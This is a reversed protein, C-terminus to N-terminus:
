DLDMMEEKGFYTEDDLEELLVSTDLWPVAHVGFLRKTAADGAAKASFTVSTDKEGGKEGGKGSSTYVALREPSINYGRMLYVKLRIMVCLASAQALVGTRARHAAVDGGKQKSDRKDNNVTRGNKRTGEEFASQDIDLLEHLDAITSATKSAAIADIEHLVLCVEDARKYPLGALIVAIWCSMYINASSLDSGKDGKFSRVLLRLFENRKARTVCVIESYVKKARQQAAKLKAVALENQRGKQQNKQRPGPPCADKVGKVIRGMDIYQPYKAVLLKLQKVSRTCLSGVGADQPASGVSSDTMAFLVLTSLCSWPGCLGDRVSIEILFLIKRRIIASTQEEVKQHPSSDMALALIRDWHLQLIASSQTVDGEGNEAAVAGMAADRSQRQHLELAEVQVLEILGSLAALTIAPASDPSLAQGIAQQAISKGDVQSIPTAMMIQCIAELASRKIQAVLAPSGVAHSAAIAPEAPSTGVLSDLTWFGNLVLMCSAPMLKEALAPQDPLFMDVQRLLRAAAFRYVQGVIFIFRPLNKVYAEPKELFALYQAAVNLLRGTATPSSLACSSLCACAASVVATFKHKNIINPLEESIDTALNVTLNSRQEMSNLITSTIGLVYLTEEAHAKADEKSTQLNETGLDDKLHPGLTRLFKLPDHEPVCSSPNALAMAYIAHLCSLGATKSGLTSTKGSGVGGGGGGGDGNGNLRGSRDGYVFLNLLALATGQQDAAHIERLLAILPNSRDILGRCGSSPMSSVIADALKALSKARDEPSRQVRVEDGEAVADFWLSKFIKVVFSKVSDEGDTSRNLIAKYSEIVKDSREEPIILCCDRLIKIASKRVSSGVDESARIVIHILRVALAADQVMHKGVLVLAAERVSISDDQLAQEVATLLSPADLLRKDVTVIDGLAKVARARTSPQQQKSELIEVLWTLMAPAASLFQEHVMAKMVLVLDEEECDGEPITAAGLLAEAGNLDDGGRGGRGDDGASRREMKRGALEDKAAQLLKSVEEQLQQDDHSGEAKVLDESLKQLVLFRLSAAASPASLSDIGNIIDLGNGCDVGDIGCIAALSRAILHPAAEAITEYGSNSELISQLLDNSENLLVSDRHLHVLIRSCVDVCLQRVASDSHQLGVPGNLRSVLRILVTSSCTWYRSGCIDLLDQVIGTMVCMFDADTESRMTKASGLREMCLEWFRDATSICLAYPARIEQSSAANTLSACNQVMELIMASLIGVDIMGDREVILPLNRKYRKGVGVHPVLAGIVDPLVSPRLDESTAQIASLVGICRAHMDAMGREVTLAQTVTRVLPTLTSTQIKIVFMIDSIVDLSAMVRDKLRSVVAPSARNKNAINNKAITWNKEKERKISRGDKKKNTTLTGKSRGKTAASRTSMTCRSDRSKASVEWIGNEEEERDDERDDERDEEQDAGVEEINEVDDDLDPRVAAKIRACHFPLLNNHLHFRTVDVCLDLTEEPIVLERNDADQGKLILREVLLAAEMASEVRLCANGGEVLTSYLKTSAGRRVVLGLNQIVSFLLKTPIKGFTGARVGFEATVLGQVDQLVRRADSLYANSSKTSDGFSGNFSEFMALLADLSKNMEEEATLAAQGTAQVAVRASPPRSGSARRKKKDAAVPSNIKVHVHRRKNDKNKDDEDDDNDDDDNNASKDPASTSAPNGTRQNSLDGSELEFIDEQADKLLLVLPSRVEGLRDEGFGPVEEGLFPRLHTNRLLNLVTEITGETPM